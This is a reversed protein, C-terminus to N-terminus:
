CKLSITLLSKACLLVKRIGIVFLFNWVCSPECTLVGPPILIFNGGSLTPPTQKILWGFVKSSLFVWKEKINLRKSVNKIRKKISKMETFTKRYKREREFTGSSRTAARCATPRKGASLRSRDAMLGAKLSISIPKAWTSNIAVRKTEKRSWRLRELIFIFKTEPSTPTDPKAPGCFIQKWLFLLFYQIDWDHSEVYLQPRLSIILRNTRRTWMCM